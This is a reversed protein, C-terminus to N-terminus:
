TAEVLSQLARLASRLWSRYCNRKTGLAIDNVDFILERDKLRAIARNVEVESMKMQAPTPILLKGDVVRILTQKDNTTTIRVERFGQRLPDFVWRWAEEKTLLLTRPEAARGNRCHGHFM